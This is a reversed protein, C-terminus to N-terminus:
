NSHVRVGLAPTVKYMVVQAVEKPSAEKNRSKVAVSWTEAPNATSATPRGDCVFPWIQRGKAAILRGVKRKYLAVMEALLVKSVVEGLTETSADSKLM